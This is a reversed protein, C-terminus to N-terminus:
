HVPTHRRIHIRQSYVRCDSVSVWKSNQNGWTVMARHTQQNNTYEEKKIEMEKVYALKARKVAKKRTKKITTTYIIHNGDHAPPSLARGERQNMSEQINYLDNLGHTDLTSITTSLPM